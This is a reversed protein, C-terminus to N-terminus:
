FQNKKKFHPKEHIIDIPITAEQGKNQFDKWFQSAEVKVAFWLDECALFLDTAKFYKNHLM